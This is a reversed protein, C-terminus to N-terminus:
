IYKSRIKLFFCQGCVLLTNIYKSRIKLYFCQRCVLLTTMYKSGTKFYICQGHLLLTNMYKSRIKHYVCDVVSLIYLHMGICKIGKSRLICFFGVLIIDTYLTSNPPYIVYIISYLYKCTGVFPVTYIM